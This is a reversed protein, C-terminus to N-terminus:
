LWSAISRETGWITDVRHLHHRVSPLVFCAVMMSRTCSLYVMDSSVDDDQLYICEVLYNQRSSDLSDMVNVKTHFEPNIERYNCKDLLLIYLREHEFTFLRKSHGITQRTALMDIVIVQTPKYLAHWILKEVM